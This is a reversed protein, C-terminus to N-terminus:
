GAKAKLSEVWSDLDTVRFRWLSGVKFSPVEGARARKRLVDVPMKLFAAAEDPTLVAPANVVSPGRDRLAANVEARIITQLDDVTLTVVLKSM